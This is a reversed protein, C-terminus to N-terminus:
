GGNRDVWDQTFSADLLDQLPEHLHEAYWLPWEPDEGDAAAVAQPDVNGARNTVLRGDRAVLDPRRDAVALAVNGGYSHGVLVM